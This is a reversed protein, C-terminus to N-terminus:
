GMVKDMEEVFREELREFYIGSKEGARAGRLFVYIAGGFHTEYNYHEGLRQKLYRHVAITYILYQLKYQNDNMAANLNDGIYDSVDYGLHNSKWDLIYFRGNHEFLLDIFGNMIGHMEKLDPNLKIDYQSLLPELATVKSQNLSFDFEMEHIKKEAPIEILAFSDHDAEIRASMVHNVMEAIERSFDDEGQGKKRNFVTLQNKEYDSLSEFDGFDSQFHINEFLEHLKTGANAGRPLDYFIFQDYDSNVKGPLTPTIEHPRRLATYSLISWPSTSAVANAANFSALSITDKENGSIKLDSDISQPEFKKDVVMSDQVKQYMEFLPAGAKGLGSNSYFVYCQYAARTIGVYILRRIEQREYKIIEGMEQDNLDLPHRLTRVSHANDTPIPSKLKVLRHEKIEADKLGQIFVIPFELGKSKHLTMISIAEEDSEIRLAYEDDKGADPTTARKLWDVLEETSLGKRYQLDHLIESLQLINSLSRQSANSGSLTEEVSFDDMLSMFAQYFGNEEIIRRYDAFKEVATIENVFQVPLNEKSRSKYVTNLFTLFLASNIHSISPNLMAQLILVMEKAEVSKTVMEDDISVAPINNKHLIKKIERGTKKDRTLIAIDKPKLSELTDDKDQMQFNEAPNLLFKVTDVIQKNNVDVSNAACFLLSHDYESGDKLLKKKEHRSEVETYGIFLGSDKGEGYGFVDDGSATFFENAAKIMKPSSRFNVNMSYSNEVKSKAHLYSEVDAGRFSYISQKPDGILFLTSSEESRDDIFLKEFLEFQVVDTDQFEDIFVASYKSRILRKLNQNNDIVISRHLNSILHDFTLIGSDEILRNLRELYFDQKSYLIAVIIDNRKRKQEKEKEVLCKVDHWFPSGLKDYYQVKLKPNSESKYYDYATKLMLSPNDLLELYKKEAPKSVKLDEQLSERRDVIFRELRAKENEFEIRFNKYLEIVESASKGHKIPHSANVDFQTGNLGQNLIEKFFSRTKELDKFEFIGPEITSIENRWFENTVRDILYSVDAQLEVQFNQGSEFAFENLMRQCFGHITVISAEDLLLQSQRLRDRLEKKDPYNNCIQLIIKEYKEANEKLDKESLSVIEAAESLFKRIREQLEAVAYNTFTVILQKDIPINKEVIMRLVLIAISFTKGTGASAEILNTGSLAVETVNFNKSESKM